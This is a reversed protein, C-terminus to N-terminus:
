IRKSGQIQWPKIKNRSGWISASSIITSNEPNEIANKVKNSLKEDGNLFWILTHTDLLMNM